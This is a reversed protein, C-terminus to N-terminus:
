RFCISSPKEMSVRRCQTIFRLSPSRYKCLKSNIELSLQGNRTAKSLNKKIRQSLFNLLPKVKENDPLGQSTFINGAYKVEHLRFKCKQANFSLNIQCIRDLVLKLSQDNDHTYTGYVLVDDVIKKCPLGELLQEIAQQYVESGSTIGYPM